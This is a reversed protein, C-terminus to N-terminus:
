ELGISRLCRYSRALADFPSEGYCIDQEVYVYKTGGNELIPVLKEFNITGDGVAAMRIERGVVKMDKFHVCPLRGALIQCYDTVDAGGYQLWYTDLTFGLEDPSTREALELLRTVGKENKIMETFHNHYMFLCGNEKLVPAIQKVADVLEDVDSENELGRFGGIGLYNCGFTKHEKVVTETENRMRNFDTHTINCTLGFKKLKEALWEPSYACTGSVQVSKYGIEAVRGLTEEFSDLDKCYDRLTYLQAGAIM